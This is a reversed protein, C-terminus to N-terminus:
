LRESHSLLRSTVTANVREWRDGGRESAHAAAARALYNLAALEYGVTSASAWGASASPRIPITGDMDIAQVRQLADRLADRLEADPALVLVVVSGDPTRGVEAAQPFAARVAPEVRQALTAVVGGNTARRIDDVDDVQVWLVSWPELNAEGRALRERARGAVRVWTGTPRTAFRTGRTAVGLVAIIASGAYALMGSGAILRLVPATEPTRPADALMTAISVIGLLFYAISIVAFAVTFPDRRSRKRVWGFFFFAGFLASILFAVRYALLFQEDPVIALVTASAGALTPGTWAHWRVGWWERFGSWLLAPAGLILGLCARRATEFGELESALVGFTGLMTLTFASSWILTARGPRALFGIGITLLTGATAVLMQAYLLSPDAIAFVSM